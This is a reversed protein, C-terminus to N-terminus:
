NRLPPTDRLQILSPLAFGFLLILASGSALLVPMMGVPPLDGQIINGLMQTVLAEMAFGVISGVIVGLIGLIVLQISATAIVFHQSAGLSKMLAVTDMRKHAFRRASM